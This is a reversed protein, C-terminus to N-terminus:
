NGFNDARHMHHCAHMCVYVCVCVRMHVCVCVIVKGHLWGAGKGLEKKQLYCEVKQRGRCLGGAAQGKKAQM